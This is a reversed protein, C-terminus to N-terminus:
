EEGRYFFKQDYNRLTEFSDRPVYYLAIHGSAALFSAPPSGTVQPLQRDTLYYFASKDRLDQRFESWTYRYDLSDGRFQRVHTSDTEAITLFTM